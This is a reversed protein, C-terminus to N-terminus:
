DRPNLRRTRLSITPKPKSNSKPNPEAKPKAEPKPQYAPRAGVKEQQIREYIEQRHVPIHRPADIGLKIQHGNIGAVVLTIRDEGEGIILSEGPSRSLILM